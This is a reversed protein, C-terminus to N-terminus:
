RLAKKAYEDVLNRIMRQYKFGKKKAYRKFRNVSNRSLELTVKVNDEKFVLKDPHPLFDEIIESQKIAEEIEHPTDTYKIKKMIFNGERVGSDLV